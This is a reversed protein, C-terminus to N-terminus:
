PLGRRVGWWHRAGRAAKPLGCRHPMRPMATASAFGAGVRFFFLAMFRNKHFRFFKRDWHGPDVKARDQTM